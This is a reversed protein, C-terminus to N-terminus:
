ISLLLQVNRSIGLNAVALGKIRREVVKLSKLSPVNDLSEICWEIALSCRFSAM